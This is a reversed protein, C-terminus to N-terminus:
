LKSIKWRIYRSRTGIPCTATIQGNAINIIVGTSQWNGLTDSYEAGYTINNRVVPLPMALRMIGTNHNLELDGLKSPKTPDLSFAYEVGDPIGDGDFDNNFDLGALEPYDNTIWADFGALNPPTVTLLFSTSRSLSGDSVTITITSQGTADATPNISVNRSSGSGSFSITHLPVLTQNSSTASVTLSSAAHDPDDITFPIEDTSTNRNITSNEIGSITPADNVSNVQLTFATSATANVSQGDNVIITVTASGFQNAAPTLTVTRATGSGALAIGSLPLLTINSSTASVTLQSLLNEPDGITFPIAATSQDEDITRNAISTITPASNQANVTLTFISTATRSGDSVTLTINATGTRNAAPTLTVTRYAGSGGLVVNALPLLTTNSSARTVTLSGISTDIDAITFSIPPSVTNQVMILAHITSITPADNVSNVTVTFTRTTTHNIDGGDKVSVTIIATGFANPVPTYRLSGTANPSTYTVTPHPILATNSSTATIVLTQTENSFGTGVGSLNVTQQAADENIAAPNSISSLTPPDNVSVVTLVFSLTATLSGDSVKIQITTTGFQNAAPTLKITRNAGSGGLVANALPVLTTNTSSRTLTLSSASTELDGITFPIAATATDENTSQNVITSLTPADNVATVTVTFTRTGKNNTAQGDNVTVTITAVGTANPVPTFILSGTANPNTYNVAPNPIIATNSSTATIALTQAESPGASIGSFNVTQLPADEAITINSIAALTPADNVPNVTLVFTTTTSASGDSATISIIASGWLNAAPTVTVTRSATTGGLVIGTLPVLDLNSSNRSVTLSSVATEVDGITFPIAGTNADENITRDTIASITPTDNVATVNVAFTRTISGNTAQGDSVTVTITATGSQNLAPKLSITGTSSPSTYTVSPNPILTTNSSTATVTLPQIEDAGATIGSLSIVQTVADELINLPGSIPNLTPAENSTAVVNLMSSSTMWTSAVRPQLRVTYRTGSTITEGATTSNLTVSSANSPYDTLTRSSLWDVNTFSVDDIFAGTYNTGGNSPTVYETTPVKRILFRITTPVGIAAAPLSANVEVFTSDTVTGSGSLASNGVKVTSPIDTWIGDHNLSYQAVFTSNSSLFGIRRYFKIASSAKPIFIRNMEVWQETQASETYALNISKTGSRVYGSTSPRLTYGTVPGPIIFASTADEGGEIVSTSLASIKGIELRYADAISVPTIAFTRSGGPPISSAGTLSPPTLLNESNFFTFRYSYSTPVGSGSINSVTVDYTTDPGSEPLGDIRWVMGPEGFGQTRDISHIPINAGNKTVTVTASNFNAGPYSLSWYETFHRWPLYGPPPWAVFQTILPALEDSRPRVYLSNSALYSASRPIDGTAFDVARTFLMWRRHGAAANAANERMYFELAPPGYTGIGINGFYSGNAGSTTYCPYGSTPNHTLTNSRSLLLASRQAADSKTTSSPAAYPDGATVVTSSTNLTINAPVGSLARYYNIRRRMLDIFPQPLTGQNCTSHNGNWNIASAYNESAKFVHHYFSLVDNRQSIDVTLGTLPAPTAPGPSWAHSWSTLLTGILLNLQKITMIAIDNM